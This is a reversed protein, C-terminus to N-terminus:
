FLTEERTEKTERGGRGTETPIRGGEKGRGCVRLVRCVREGSGAVICGAVHTRRMSRPCTSRDLPHTARAGTEGAVAAGDVWMGCPAAAQYAVVEIGFGLLGEFRGDGSAADLEAELLRGRHARTWRGVEGGGLAGEEGEEGVGNDGNDAGEGGAM